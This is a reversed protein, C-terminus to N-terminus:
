VLSDTDNREEPILIRLLEDRDCGMVHLSTPSFITRQFIVISSSNILTKNTKM